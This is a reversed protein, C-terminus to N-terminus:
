LLLTISLCAHSLRQSSRIVVPLILWTAKVEGITLLGNVPRCIFQGVPGGEGLGLSQLPKPSCTLGLTKGTRDAKRWYTVLHCRETEKLIVKEWADSGLSEIWSKRWSSVRGEAQIAGFDHLPLVAPGNGLATKRGKM